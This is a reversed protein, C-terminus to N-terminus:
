KVLTAGTLGAVAGLTTQAPGPYRGSGAPSEKGQLAQRQEIHARGAQLGTEENNWFAFRITRDTKVDPASFVRALEMVLATGSRMDM